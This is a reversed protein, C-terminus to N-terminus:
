PKIRENGNEKHSKPLALKLAKRILAKEEPTLEEKSHKLHGTIELKNAYIPHHHRLWLQIAPFNKDRILSILQSESMDTIFAEGEAIARDAAKAFEKDENQWRYFTGRSVNSRECAVQIIPMKKLQELIKDKERLQREQITREAKKDM